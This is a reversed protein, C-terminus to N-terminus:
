LFDHSTLMEIVYPFSKQTKTNNMFVFLVFKEFRQSNIVRMIIDIGSM